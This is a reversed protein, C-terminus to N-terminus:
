RVCQYDKQEETGSRGQFESRSEKKSDIVSDLNDYIFQQAQASFLVVTYIGYM